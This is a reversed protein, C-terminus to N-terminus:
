SFRDGLEELMVRLYFAEAQRRRFFSTTSCCDDFDFFLGDDLLPQVAEEARVVSCNRVDTYIQSFERNFIQRPVIFRHLPDLIHDIHGSINHDHLDHHGM